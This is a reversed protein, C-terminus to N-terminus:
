LLFAVCVCLAIDQDEKLGEEKGRQPTLFPSPSACLLGAGEGHSSNYAMEEGGVTLWQTGGGDREEGGERGRKYNPLPSLRAAEEKGM